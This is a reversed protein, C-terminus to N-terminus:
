LMGYILTRAANHLLHFTVRAEVTVSLLLLVVACMDAFFFLELRWLHLADMQHYGLYVASLSQPCSHIM